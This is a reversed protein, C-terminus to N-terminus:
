ALTALVGGLATLAVGAVLVVLVLALPRPRPIRM